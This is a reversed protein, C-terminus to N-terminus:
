PDDVTTEFEVRRQGRSLTIEQILSSRSFHKEVRLTQRLPGDAVWSVTTKTEPFIETEMYSHDIDWAEYRVTTDRYLRFCNGPAALLERQCERDVASIM